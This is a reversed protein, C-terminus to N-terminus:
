LVERSVFGQVCVWYVEWRWFLKSPLALLQGKTTFRTGVCEPHGQVAFWLVCPGPKSNCTLNLIGKLEGYGSNGISLFLCM